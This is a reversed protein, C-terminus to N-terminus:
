TASKHRSEQTTKRCVMQNDKYCIDALLLALEGYSDAKPRHELSANTRIGACMHPRYRSFLCRANGQDM